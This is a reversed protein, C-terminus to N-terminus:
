DPQSPVGAAEIEPAFGDREAAGRLFKEFEDLDVPDLQGFSRMWVLADGLADPELNCWIVRGRREQTILGAQELIRLHKSVASLSAPFSNAVDTVAMDDELLLALIARRTRHALASFIADLASEARVGRSPADPFDVRKRAGPRTGASGPDARGNM